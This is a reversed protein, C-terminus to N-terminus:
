MLLLMEVEEEDELEKALLAIRAVESWDQRAELAPIEVPISFHQVLAQLWDLRIVEHPVQEDLAKYVKAKRRSKSQAKQIVQQAKEEAALWEDADEVTDFIHIKKGRKIYVKRGGM